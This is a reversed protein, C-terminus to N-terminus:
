RFSGLLATLSQMKADEVVIVIRPSYIIVNFKFVHFVSIHPYKIYNFTAIIIKM